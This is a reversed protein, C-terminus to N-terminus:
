FGIQCVNLHVHDLKTHSPHFSGGEKKGRVDAWRYVDGHSAQLLKMYELNSLIEVYNRIDVMYGVNRASPPEVIKNQYLKTEQSAM